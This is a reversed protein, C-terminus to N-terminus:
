WLLRYMCMNEGNCAYGSVAYGPQCSCSFSGLTNTCIQDCPGRGGNPLCENIDASTKILVSVIVLANLLVRLVTGARDYLFNVAPDYLFYLM